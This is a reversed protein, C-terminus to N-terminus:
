SHFTHAFLFLSLLATARLVATEYNGKNNIISLIQSAFRLFSHWEFSHVNKLLNINFLFFPFNM